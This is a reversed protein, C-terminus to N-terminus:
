HKFHFNMQTFLISHTLQYNSAIFVSSTWMSPTENHIMTGSSVITKNIFCLFVWLQAWACLVSNRVEFNTYARSRIPYRKGCNVTNDSQRGSLCHRSSKILFTFLSEAGDWLFVWLVTKREWKVWSYNNNTRRKQDSLKKCISNMMPKKVVSFHQPNKLKRVPPNINPHIGNIKHKRSIIWDNFNLRGSSAPANPKYLNTNHLLLLNRDPKGCNWIIM